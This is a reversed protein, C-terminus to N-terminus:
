KRKLLKEFMAEANETTPLMESLINLTYYNPAETYGDNEQAAQITEILGKLTGTYEDALLAANPNLITEFEIAWGKPTVIIAM